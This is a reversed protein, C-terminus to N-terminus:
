KLSRGFADAKLAAAKIKEPSINKSSRKYETTEPVFTMMEDLDDATLGVDELTIPLGLSQNFRAIKELEAENDDYAHLVMVGFSVVEGHLYEGERPILCAADFFIHAIYSNYYFDPQNTLNSVYGTSVLVDLAIEEVARSVRNHKVDELGEKGWKLFPEECTKAIGVGLRAMHSLDDGKSASLVEAQKSIGDGIGAWFYIDPAEAIIKLDIFIDSPSKPFEYSEVRGSEDYVVAIATMAACNSCITPFSFAPKDARLSLVKTTDLAKGGGIGFLVDAEKVAPENKLREINANTCEVGYVFTGTIEVDCGKLADKIKGSVAKLAREGGILAVKKFGRSALVEPLEDYGDKSLHYNPMYM